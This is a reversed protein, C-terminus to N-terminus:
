ALGMVWNMDRAENMGTLWRLYLVRNSQKKKKSKGLKKYGRSGTTHHIVKNKANIKNQKSIKNAEKSQKYKKFGSWYPKL